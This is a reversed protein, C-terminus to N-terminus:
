RGERLRWWEDPYDIDIPFSLSLTFYSVKFEIPDESLTSNIYSLNAKLRQSFFYSLTFRFGVGGASSDVEDEVSKTNLIDIFFSTMIPISWEWGFGLALHYTTASSGKDPFLIGYRGSFMLHVYDSRWGLIAGGYPGHVTFTKNPIEIGAIVLDSKFDYTGYGYGVEPEVYLTDEARSPSAIMFVLACVFPYFVRHHM